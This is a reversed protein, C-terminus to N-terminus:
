SRTPVRVLRDFWDAGDLIMHLDLLDDRTLPPGDHAEQLEAPLEWVVTPVGVSQLLTVVRGDAAPKTVIEACRPCAFHYTSAEVQTCVRLRLDSPTLEVDGCRPCTAKVIAQVHVGHEPFQQGFSAREAQYNAIAREPPKGASAFAGATDAFTGLALAAQAM